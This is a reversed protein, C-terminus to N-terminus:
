QEPADSDSLKEDDITFRINKVSKITIMEIGYSKLLKDVIENPVDEKRVLYNEFQSFTVGIKQAMEELTVENNRRRISQIAHELSVNNITTSTESSVIERKM